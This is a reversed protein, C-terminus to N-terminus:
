FLPLLAVRKKFPDHPLLPLAVLRLLPIAAGQTFYWLVHIATGPFDDNTFLLSKSNDGLFKKEYM